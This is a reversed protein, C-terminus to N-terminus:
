LQEALDESESDSSDTFMRPSRLRKKRLPLHRAAAKKTPRIPTLFAVEEPMDLLYVLFSVM